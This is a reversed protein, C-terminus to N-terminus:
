KKTRFESRVWDDLLNKEYVRSDTRIPTSNMLFSMDSLHRSGEKIVAGSADFLQFTLDIRPPYIEKVIRVDQLRPGRWPEVEGALDVDTIKVVLRQGELLMRSARRELHEKLVELNSDRGWDSGRSADAADTFKEPEVFTVEVRSAAPSKPAPAASLQAASFAAMAAAGLLTLSRIKM